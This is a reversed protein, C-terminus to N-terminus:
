FENPASLEEPLPRHRAPAGLALTGPPVDETVVAGAAVFSGEGVTVGPLLTANAGVSVGDGLIPGRLVVDRRLPYPDNTLVARPGVFVRDGVTTRRPIYVGTQLSVSSGIDSAGDIVTQTGVLVDDGITTGERILADHGTVFRDGIHVDPYLITGSRIVADAGVVTPESGDTARKFTVGSEVRCREGLQAEGETPGERSKWNM